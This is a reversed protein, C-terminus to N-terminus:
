AEQPSLRNRFLVPRAARRAERIRSRELREDFLDLKIVETRGKIGIRAFLAFAYKM